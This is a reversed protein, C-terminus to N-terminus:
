NQSASPKPCENALHNLEQADRRYQATESKGAARTIEVVDIRDYDDYDWKAVLHPAAGYQKLLDKEAKVLERHEWSVYIVHGTLEQKGLGKALTATDDYGIDVNVPLGLRIATPEITALPRIYDYSKGQDDKRVSPNPAFVTDAPGFKGILVDPLALARQLGRCSLQGLGLEPKEGHRIFIIREVDPAVPANAACVPAILAFSFGLALVRKLLSM